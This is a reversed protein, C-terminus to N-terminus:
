SGEHTISLHEPLWGQVHGQATLQAAIPPYQAAVWAAMEQESRRAQERAAPYGDDILEVDAETLGLAALLSTEGVVGPPAPDFFDRAPRLALRIDVERWRPQGSHDVVVSILTGCSECQEPCRPTGRHGWLVAPDIFSCRCSADKKKVM